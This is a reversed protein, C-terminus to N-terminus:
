KRLLWVTHGAAKSSALFKGCQEAQKGALPPTDTGLKRM